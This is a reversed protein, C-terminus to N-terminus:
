IENKTTSLEDIAQDDFVSLTTADDDIADIEEILADKQALEGISLNYKSAQGSLSFTGIFLLLILSPVLVIHKSKWIAIVEAITNNIIEFPKATQRNYRVKENETVPVDLNSILRSFSVRDPVSEKKFEKIIINEFEQNNMYKTDM